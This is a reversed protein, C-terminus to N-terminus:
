NDFLGRSFDVMRHQRPRSPVAFAAFLQFYMPKYWDSVVNSVLFQSSRVLPDGSDNISKHRSRSTEAAEALATEPGFGENLRNFIFLNEGNISRHELKAERTRM